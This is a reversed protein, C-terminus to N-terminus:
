QIYKEVNHEKRQSATSKKVISKWVCMATM